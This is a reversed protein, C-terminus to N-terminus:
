RILTIQGRKIHNEGKADTYTAQYLYTAAPMLEGKYRGDWSQDINRAEFLKQGLRNYVVISLNTIGIGEAKFVDNRGDGNPTFASPIFLTSCDKDIKVTFTHTSTQGNINTVTLEYYSDEIPSVIIQNTIDGTNWQYQFGKDASLLADEGFCITPNDSYSVIFTDNIIDNNQKDLITLSSDSQETLSNTSTDVEVLKAENNGTDDLEFANTMSDVSAFAEKEDVPVQEGCNPTYIHIPEVLDTKKNKEKEQVLNNKKVKQIEISDNDEVLIINNASLKNNSLTNSTNSIVKQGTSQVQLNNYSILYHSGVFYVAYLIVVAAIIYFLKYFQVFPKAIGANVNANNVANWVSPSPKIELGDFAEKFAKGINEDSYNM